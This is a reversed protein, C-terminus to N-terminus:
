PMTYFRGGLSFHKHPPQQPLAKACSLLQPPLNLREGQIASALNSANCTTRLFCITQKLDLPDRAINIWPIAAKRRIFLGHSEKIVTKGIGLGGKIAQKRLQRRDVFNVKSNQKRRTLQGYDGTCNQACVQFL